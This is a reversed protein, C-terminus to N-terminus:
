KIEGKKNNRDYCEIMQIAVAAVQILEERYNPNPGIRYLNDCVAKCVEGYEEGLISLWGAPKHNQKGWKDNQRLREEIIDQLISEIKLEIM